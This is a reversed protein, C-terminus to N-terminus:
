SKVEAAKSAEILKDALKPVANAERIDMLSMERVLGEILEHEASDPEESENVVAYYDWFLESISKTESMEDSLEADSFTKKVAPVIEMFLSGRSEAASRLASCMDHDPHRDTIEGRLYENTGSGFQVSNLIDDYAGRLVRVNHLPKIPILTIEPEEEKSRLEVLVAGKDPYKAEDFHYCLPSGAYRVTKSGVSQARHIHGLAAYEFGEFATFDIGGVGAVMTESGGREAEVGNRTVNQHSVIVNRQTFDIDQAQILKRFATDYDHIDECHLIDSVAQPFLYPVLWFTVPGYDDELTVHVVKASPVGAVYVGGKELVSGAFGLKQGSDHNGAVMLVPINKASLETIMEDLLRVAENSPNSRDYVDGAIVVAEAGTEAAAELFRDKWYPQDKEALSVDNMYKGFHLDSIHLFKM